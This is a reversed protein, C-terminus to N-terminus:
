GAVDEERMGPTVHAAKGMNIHRSRQERKFVAGPIQALHPFLRLPALGAGEGTEGQTCISALKFCRDSYAETAEGFHAKSM